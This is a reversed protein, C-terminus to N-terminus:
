FDKKEEKSALNKAESYLATLEANKPCLAKRSEKLTEVKQFALSFNDKAKQSKLALLVAEYLEQRKM